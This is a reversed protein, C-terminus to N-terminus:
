KNLQGFVAVKDGASLGSVIEVTADAGSAGATVERKEGTATGNDVIVYTKEGDKMLASAPVLLVNQRDAILININATLGAKIAEDAANFELKVNYVPVGNVLTSAPDITIVTAAFERSSGYADLIVTASQGVKVRAVDKESLQGSIQYKADSILGILPSSATVM